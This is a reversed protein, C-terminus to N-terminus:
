KKGSKLRHNCSLGSKRGHIDSSDQKQSGVSIGDGSHFEERMGM